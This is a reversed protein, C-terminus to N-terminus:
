QIIQPTVRKGAYINYKNAARFIMKTKACLSVRIFHQIGHYKMQPKLTQLKLGDLITLLSAEVLKECHM